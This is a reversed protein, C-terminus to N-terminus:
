DVDDDDKEDGGDCDDAGAVECVGVTMTLVERVVLGAEFSPDVDTGGVVSNIVDVWVAATKGDPGVELLEVSDFDEDVEASGADRGVAPEVAFM